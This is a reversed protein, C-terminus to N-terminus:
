GKSEDALRACLYQRITAVGGGLRVDQGKAADVPDSSHACSTDTGMLPVGGQARCTLRDVRALRYDPALLSVRTDSPSVPSFVRLRAKFCSLQFNLRASWPTRVLTISTKRVNVMASPMPMDMMSKELTSLIGTNNM